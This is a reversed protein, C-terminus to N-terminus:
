TKREIYVKGVYYSKFVEKLDRLMVPEFKGNRPFSFNWTRIEKVKNGTVPLEHITVLDPQLLMASNFWQLKEVQKFSAFSLISNIKFKGRTIFDILKKDKSVIQIVFESGPLIKKMCPFGISGTSAAQYEIESLQNLLDMSEHQVLFYNVLSSTYPFGIFSSGADDLLVMRWNQIWFVLTDDTPNAYKIDFVISKKEVQYTVSVQPQEAWCNGITLFVVLVGIIQGNKRM